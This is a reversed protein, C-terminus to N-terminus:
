NSEEPQDFVVLLFLFVGVGMAALVYEQPANTLYRVLLTAVLIFMSAGILINTTRPSFHKEPQQSM